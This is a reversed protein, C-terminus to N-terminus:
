TVAMSKSAASDQGQEFFAVIMGAMRDTEARRVLSARASEIVDQALHDQLHDTLAAIFDPTMEPHYQTTFVNAGITFSGIGCEANGGLVVAGEPVQTVQERHAAYLRITGPSSIWPTARITTETL